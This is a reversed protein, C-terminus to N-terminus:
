NLGLVGAQPDAEPVHLEGGGFRLILKQIEFQLSRCRKEYQENPLDPPQILSFSVLTRTGSLALVRLPFNELKDVSPGIRLDIVGTRDDAEAEVIMEGRSTYAWWGSYRLELREGFGTAWKPLNEIDALFNFVADRSADVSLAYTRVQM